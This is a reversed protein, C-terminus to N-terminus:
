EYKVSGSFYNAVTGINEDTLEGSEYADKLLYFTHDKYAYLLLGSDHHWFGYDGIKIETIVQAYFFPGDMWVVDYGNYTGYYELRLEEPKILENFEESSMEAYDELIMQKVEPDIVLSDNAPDWDSPDKESAAKETFRYVMTIAEARTATGQPLLKGDNGSIIGKAVSWSVAKEAFDSVDAADPYDALDAAEETDYGKYEAYRFLITALQERTILDAPGFYGNEYGTVINNEAAWLTAPGYWEDGSIDQFTKETEVKPEKEMRHLVLVLQARAFLEYPGFHMEEPVIIIQDEYYAKVAPYFWDSESVDVYPIYSVPIQEPIKDAPEGNEVAATTDTADVSSAWTTLFNGLAIVLTLGIAIAIRIKKKM